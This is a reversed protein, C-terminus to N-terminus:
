VVVMLALGGGGGGGSRLLADWCVWRLLAVDVGRTASVLPTEAAVLAANRMANIPLLAAVTSDLLLEYLLLLRLQCGGKTVQSEARCAPMFARCNSEKPNM